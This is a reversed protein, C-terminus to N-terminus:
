CQEFAMRSVLLKQMVVLLLMISVEGGCMCVHVGVCVCM